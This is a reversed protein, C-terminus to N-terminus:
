KVSVGSGPRGQPREEDARGAEGQAARQSGVGGKRVAPRRARARGCDDGRLERYPQHALTLCDVALTEGFRKTLADISLAPAVALIM